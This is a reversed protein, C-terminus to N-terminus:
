ACTACRGVLDLRHHDVVFRGEANVAAAAADIRAELDAPVTFDAVAGCAVCILHHHHEGGVDEALEFHSREDSTVIRRVVGATELESLNRYASSQALGDDEALIEPLTMPRASRWLVDVVARRSGTYRLGADRLLAAATRHLDEADIRRPEADHTHQHTPSAAAM